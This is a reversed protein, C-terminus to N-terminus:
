DALYCGSAFMRVKANGFRCDAPFDFKGPGCKASNTNIRPACCYYGSQDCELGAGTVNADCKPFGFYSYGAIIQQQPCNRVPDTPNSFRGVLNINAPRSLKDTGTANGNVSETQVTVNRNSHVALPLVVHITWIPTRGQPVDVNSEFYGELSLQDATTNVAFDGRKKLTTAGVKVIISLPWPAEFSARFGKSPMIKYTGEATIPYETFQDGPNPIYFVKLNSPTVAMPASQQVQECSALLFAVVLLFGFKVPTGVLSNLAM